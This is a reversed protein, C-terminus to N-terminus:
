GDNKAEDIQESLGRYLNVLDRVMNKTTNVRDIGCEGVIRAIEELQDAAEIMQSMTEAYHVARRREIESVEPMTNGRLEATIGAVVEGAGVEGRYWSECWDRFRGTQRDRQEIIDQAQQVADDRQQETETLRRNLQEVVTAFDRTQQRAEEMEKVARRTLERRRVLMEQRRDDFQRLRQLETHLEEVGNEQMVLLADKTAQSLMRSATIFMERNTNALACLRRVEGELNASKKRENYFRDRLSQKEIELLRIKLLEPSDNTRREM